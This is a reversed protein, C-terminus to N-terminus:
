HEGISTEPRVVRDIIPKATNARRDPLLAHGRQNGRHFQGASLDPVSAAGRRPDPRWGPLHLQFGREVALAPKRPPIAKQDNARVTRGRRVDLASQPIHSDEGVTQRRLQSIVGADNGSQRREGDRHLASAPGDPVEFVTMKSFHIRQRSRCQHPTPRLFIGEHLSMAVCYTM